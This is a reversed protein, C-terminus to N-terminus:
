WYRYSYKQDELVNLHSALFHRIALADSKSYEVLCVFLNSQDWLKMWVEYTGMKRGWFRVCYIRDIQNAVVSKQFLSSGRQHVEIFAESNAVTITTIRDGWKRLYWTSATLILVGVGILSIAFIWNGRRGIVELGGGAFVIGIVYLVIMGVGTWIRSFLSPTFRVSPKLPDDDFKIM